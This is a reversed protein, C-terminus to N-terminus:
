RAAAPKLLAYLLVREVEQEDTAHGLVYDAGIERVSLRAPTVVEGLWVGDRDFVSWRRAADDSATVEAVWLNGERDTLLEGFAPMTEPYPVKAYADRFQAMFPNAQGEIAETLRARHEEVEAETVARPEHPRRILRTLDGAPTYVGIEYTDSTGVYAHDGAAAVSTNPSFPMMLPMPISRGGFDLMQIDMQPGPFLGLTDTPAGAADLHLVYMSDRAPGANRQLMEPGIRTNPKQALYTGDRLRGVVLLPVPNVADAVGLDRVHRGAADFLSLRRNMADLALVTDGPVALVTVLMQFEGPGGGKRGASHKLSGDPAYYRLQQTGANAVVISGDSLRTVGSVQFFEHDPDGESVGIALTPEPSVTWADEAAWAPAGNEVIAIGASDRAAASGTRIVAAERCGAALALVALATPRVQARM